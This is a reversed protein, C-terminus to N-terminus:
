TEKPEKDQDDKLLEEDIELGHFSLKKNRERLIDLVTDVDKNKKDSLDIGFQGKYDVLCEESSPEILARFRTSMNQM